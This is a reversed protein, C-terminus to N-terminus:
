FTTGVAFRFTFRATPQLNNNLVGTRSPNWSSILRFPVNLVPMFFRLEIGTSTKFAATEGVVQTEVPPLPQNSALGLIPAYPDVLFIQQATTLQRQLVPEKWVFPNGVDQVQGADAFLVLRVPGAINIYYEANFNLSKNGGVVLNSTPDRPGITRIDFGRVSYEGGLFYKEFIPLITTGGYPHIYQVQARLGISTRKTFPVYWIGEGQTSWYQTDGGLGAISGGVTYRTGSNPFIPANVTNYVISPSVKSVTQHGGQDILLSDRLYPSSALVAPNLYAPSINSVQVRTFSYGLFFRTYGRLPLGISTNVGREAQTYQAPFIYERTYLDTGLTIPRDWMYPESFSLQYNQAQSGKQLSVGLTEGRGLFNSTQFSLQGFFGDFQSVGAGFSLQNRNQETVKLKVDVKGDQGPVPTVAIDDTKELPKFYGLQNLRRISEKLAETNFLGGDAIRLERRIVNDHTTNNGVFTIRNVFYQKGEDMRMTIDVVAAAPQPGVPEGSKCDTGAFCLEPEPTFEMYGYTGYAEKAKEMGKQLKKADYYDGENIKFQERLWDTKLAKADVIEFKGVKYRRDEDVPIRLRIDRTKGDKSTSIVEVQPNGVRARAYGQEHYFDVVKQADDAFKAEQYKGADTIFSLWSSPKNDKLQSALKANDFAHNGDFVVEKIVYKPGEDINFTLRVLKPGGEIPVVEPTVTVGDYGKEAYLDHIVGQVRRITPQDVFSDLRVNIGKEKLSDEIKSVEVRLKTGKTPQYDVVKVRSREEIHFIVHEGMVGNPYPEDVVEIWLNDLFGAKWLSLFDARLADENYVVWQDKDPVSSRTKIYYNYTQPEVVTENVPHAVVQLCRLLAKSDAPPLKAQALQALVQADEQDIGNSVLFAGYDQATRKGAKVDQEWSALSVGKATLEGSIRTHLAIAEATVNPIDPCPEVQAAASTAFALVSAATLVVPVLWRVSLRVSLM